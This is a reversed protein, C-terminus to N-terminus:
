LTRLCNGAFSEESSEKQSFKVTQEWAAQTARCARLEWDNNSISILKGSLQHGSRNLDTKLIEYYALVANGPILM